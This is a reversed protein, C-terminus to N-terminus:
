KGPTVTGARDLRTKIRVDMAANRLTEVKPVRQLIASVTTIVLRCKGTAPPEGLKTLADIRRAVVDPHPSVRDYPLCDWAPVAIIEIDPAFFAVSEVLSTLRLEDRAVHLTSDRGASRAREVLVLADYGEPVGALIRAKTKTLFSEM